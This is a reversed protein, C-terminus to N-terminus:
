FNESIQLTLNKIFCYIQLILSLLCIILQSAEVVLWYNIETPTRFYWSVAFKWQIKARIVVYKKSIHLTGPRHHLFSVLLCSVTLIAYRTWPPSSIIEVIVLSECALWSLTAFKRLSMGYPRRTYLTQQRPRPVSSYKDRDTSHEM